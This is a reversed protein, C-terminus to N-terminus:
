IAQLLFGSAQASWSGAATSRQVRLTWGAELVATTLLTLSEVKTTGLMVAIWIPTLTADGPAFMGFLVDVPTAAITKYATLGKVSAVYGTPVVYDIIGTTQTGTKLFNKSYVPRM